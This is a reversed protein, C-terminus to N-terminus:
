KSGFSQTIPTKAAEAVSRTLQRQEAIESKLTEITSILSAIEKVQQDITAKMDATASKFELDRVKLRGEVERKSQAEIEKKNESITKEMDKKLQDLESKLKDYDEKKINVEGKGKVVKVAKDYENNDFEREMKDRRLQFEKELEYSREKYEKELNYNKMDHEKALKDQLQQYAETREKIKSDISKISEESFTKLEDFSSMFETHVKTTSELKKCLNDVHRMLEVSLGGVSEDSKELLDVAPEEEKKKQVTKKSAKPPM